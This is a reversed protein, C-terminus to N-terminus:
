STYCYSPLLYTTFFKGRLRMSRIVIFLFTSGRASKRDRELVFKVKQYEYDEEIKVLNPVELFVESNKQRATIETSIKM